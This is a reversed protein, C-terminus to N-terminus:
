ALARQEADFSATSIASVLWAEPFLSDPNLLSRRYLWTEGEPTDHSGTRDMGPRADDLGANNVLGEVLSAPLASGVLRGGAVLASHLTADTADSGAPARVSQGLVLTGVHVGFSNISAALIRFPLDRGSQQLVVFGLQVSGDSAALAASPVQSAVTEMDIMGGAGDVPPLMAGSRDLMRFFAYNGQRLEDAAIRYIAPDNEEMAAFLRVSTALRTVEEIATRDAVAQLDRFSSSQLSFLQDALAAYTSQNQRQALLLSAATTLVVVALMGLFLRSRFTM